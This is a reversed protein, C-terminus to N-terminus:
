PKGAEGKWQARAHRLAERYAGEAITQPSWEHAMGTKMLGEIHAKVAEDDLEAQTKKREVPLPPFSMWHTFGSFSSPFGTAVLGKGGDKLCYALVADGDKETPKRESFAIWPSAESAKAEVPAPEPQTDPIIYTWLDSPGDGAAHEGAPGFRGSGGSYWVRAFDRNFRAEEADKCFRWGKPVKDAPVNEPNHYQTSV